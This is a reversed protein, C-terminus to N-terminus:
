TPAVAPIHLLGRARTAAVRNGKLEYLRIAQEVARTAEADRGAARLVDAYDLAVKARLNLADTQEVVKLAQAALAVAAGVDGRRAILKANVARSWAQADRDEPTALERARAAWVDADEVRGLMYLVDALKGSFSALFATANAEV